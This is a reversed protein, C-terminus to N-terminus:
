KRSDIEKQKRPSAKGTEVYIALDDLLGPYLKKLAMKMPIQMITGIIPMVEIRPGVIIETQTNSIKNLKWTSVVSRVFFPLGTVSFQFMHNDEDIKTIKDM